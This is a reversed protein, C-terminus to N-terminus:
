FNLIFCLGVLGAPSLGKLSLAVTIWDPDSTLPHYSGAVVM